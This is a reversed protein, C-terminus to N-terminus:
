NGSKVIKLSQTNSGQSVKLIYVGPTLSNGFSFRSNNTGVTQYMMRGDLSFVQLTVKENSGGQMDMTFLNSSPNPYAKINFVNVIERSRAQDVGNPRSVAFATDKAVTKTVTEVTVSDDSKEVSVTNELLTNTATKVNYSAEGLFTSDTTSTDAAMRALTVGPAKVLIISTFPQLTVSTYNTGDVGTYTGDLSITKATRTANYEFRLQSETDYRTATVEYFAVNDIYTTGSNQELEIVFSGGADTAPANFLFEHDKRGTGFTKTQIPTLNSYPSGTKRIYARTIGQQTTGNTSFRLVYKKGSNVAGIPSHLLIYKNAAPATFNIRLAGGLIKGTNDWVGSVGSGFVTLGSIGTNFLGNSFKNLGVLSNVAHEVPVKVPKRGNLDKGTVAKWAELSYPSSQILAGGTSSYIEFNFGTPNVMNYTNSDITGLNALASSLTTTAPENIGSNTYYFARQTALKPYFINNKIAVNRIAGIHAWRMISMANLNNFSTNGRITVTQPNNCHIGNKGNNFVTNNLVNVNMTRGDLYIGTVFPSTSNRGFPAGVGNMVINNSITRNTYVTAPSADTGAAYTYIGGADDKVCDFYNVVNYRVNVNSGQFEIGVYGTTDVTNYEILLNNTSAMIGKYSNGNSLGMGPLIGTNKVTCNRITIASGASAIALIGNSLSNRINCNEILLNSTLSSNIAGTGSNNFDCYQIKIYNGSLTFIANGNAGEFSLNSINIYSKASLTLLTDICSVKVTYGAPSVTGFFMQLYRTGSKYYWEGLRDLTRVDNQIFYGYGNSGTYTSGNTNVFTLKGGSQATIKGRDLVWLKKRVAVEAGTWNTTGPLQADTISTAGTYTEYSLYGGNAADANPYRGLAQANGNLAVMNLTSKAGPIYAQYIGTSVTTWSSATVFGTIIPKNGSGYASIVIPRGSVGSKGVVIAGYFTDGKRFLISDGAVISNFSANLKAISQWPSSPSTGNNNNNGNAAVYFNKASAPFNIVTFFLVLCVFSKKM